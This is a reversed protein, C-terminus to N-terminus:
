TALLGRVREIRKIATELRELRKRKEDDRRELVEVREELKARAKRETAVMENAQQFLQVSLDEIEGSMQSLKGEAQQRLDQERALAAQLDSERRSSPLPPLPPAPSTKRGGLLSSFRSTKVTANASQPRADEDSTRGTTATASDSATSTGNTVAGDQSSKLQRLEDEYDALKDVAATAKDTLIKVQSELEAIRQKDKDSYQDSPHSYLTGCNPCTHSHASMQRPFHDDPPRIAVAVAPMDM